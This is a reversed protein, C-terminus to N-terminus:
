ATVGPFRFTGILSAGHSRLWDDSFRHEVVQPPKKGDVRQSFAHILSLGGYLYDGFIGIHRNSGFAMVAIDGPRAAGFAIPLLHERCQELMSEDAAQRAYDRTDFDTIGLAHAVLLVLGLCDMGERSRGQHRWRCGLHTRAEAVIESGTM